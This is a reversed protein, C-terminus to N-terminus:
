TAAYGFDGTTGLDRFVGRDWIFPHFTADGTLYSYGAVQGRNNIATANTCTGGLSGLNTMTGNKWLFAGTTLSDFGPFSCAPSLDSNTYSNGIIQGSENISVAMADPGGLTGLDHIVGNRWSYARTQFPFPLGFSAIM